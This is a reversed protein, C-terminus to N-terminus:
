KNTKEIAKGFGSFSHASYVRVRIYYRPSNISDFLVQEIPDTKFVKSNDNKRPLIIFNNQNLNLHITENTEKNIACIEIQLNIADSYGNNRIQAKIKRRNEDICINEISLNSRLKFLILAWFASILFGILYSLYDSYDLWCGSKYCLIFM